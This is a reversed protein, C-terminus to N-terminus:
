LERMFNYEDQKIKSSDVFGSFMGKLCATTNEYIQLRKVSDYFQAVGVEKLQQLNYKFGPHNVCASILSQISTQSDDDKQKEIEIERRDKSIYWEKLTKNTTVKEEPFINFVGRLYQSIHWYVEETIEIDDEADYLILEEEEKDPLRKTYMQFKSWDLDKFMLKSAEPNIGRYLMMFLQFDSIENWDLGNDWLMLRYTTTNTTFISLTSYFEKEGLKVIDGITPSYVTVSGSTNDLDIVYPEGFYMQLKDFEIVPNRSKAM